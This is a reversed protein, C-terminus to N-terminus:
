EKDEQAWVLRKVVHKNKLIAKKWARSKKINMSALSRQVTNVSVQPAINNYLQTFTQCCPKKSERALHRQTVNHLLKPRSPIPLNKATGRKQYRLFLNRLTFPPRNLQKGIRSYSLNQCRFAIGQGNELELLRGTPYRLM